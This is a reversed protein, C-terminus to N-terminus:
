ESRDGEGVRECKEDLNMTPAAPKRRRGTEEAMGKESERISEEDAVCVRKEGDGETEAM